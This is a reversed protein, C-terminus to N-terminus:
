CVTKENKSKIYKQDKRSMSDIYETFAPLESAIVDEISEIARIKIDTIQLDLADQYNESPIYVVACGAEKAAILKEYLGGIKKVRGTPTIEGTMSSNHQLSKKMRASLISMVVAVGASPGTKMVDSDNVHVHIRRNNFLDHYNSRLYTEAVRVTEKVSDDALGTIITEGSEELLVTEIKLISGQDEGIVCLGNVIGPLAKGISQCTYSKISVDKKDVVIPLDSKRHRGVANLVTRRAEASVKRIGSENRHMIVMQLIAADTVTINKTNKNLSQVYSPVVREQLIRFKEFLTYDPVEFRYQFRNLIIPNIKDTDNCTAIILIGDLNIPGIYVDNITRHNGWTVGLLDILVNLVDESTKDIEDLLLVKKGIGAAALRKALLGEKAPSGTLIFANHIDGLPIRVLKSNSALSISEALSSKGVGAPGEFLMTVGSDETRLTSELLSNAIEEKVKDLGLHSENLKNIFADYDYEEYQPNKCNTKLSVMLHLKHLLKAKEEENDIEYVTKSLERIESYDKESYAQRNRHAIVRPDMSDVDEELVNRIIDPTIDAVKNNAAFEFLKTLYREISHIDDEWCYQDCVYRITSRSIKLDSMNYKKRLEPIYKNMALFEYDKETLEHFVIVSDFARSQNSVAIKERNKATCIFFTKELSIPMSYYADNLERRELISQIFPMPKQGNYMSKNTDVSDIRFAMATTSEKVLHEGFFGPESDRITRDAGKLILLDNCGNIDIRAVPVKLAKILVEAFYDTVAGSGVLAISFGKQNSLSNYITDVLKDTEKQYVVQLTRDIGDYCDKIISIDYNADNTYLSLVDRVRSLEKFEIKNEHNIFSDVATRVAAPFYDSATNYFVSLEDPSLKKLNGKSTGSRSVQSLKSELIGKEYGSLKEKHQIYLELANKLEKNHLCSFSRSNRIRAYEEPLVVCVAHHFTDVGESYISVVMGRMFAPKSFLTESDLHFADIGRRLITKGGRFIDENLQIHTWSFEIGNVHREAYKYADKFTSIDSITISTNKLELSEPLENCVLYHNLEDGTIIVKVYRDKSHDETYLVAIVDGKGFFNQSMVTTGDIVYRTNKSIFCQIKNGSSTYINSTLTLIHSVMETINASM